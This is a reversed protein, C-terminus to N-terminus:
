EVTLVLGIDSTFTGKLTKVEYSDSAFTLIFYRGKNCYDVLYGYGYLQDLAKSLQKSPKLVLENGSDSVVALEDATKILMFGDVNEEASSVKSALEISRLENYKRSYINTFPKGNFEGQFVIFNDTSIVYKGLPTDIEHAEDPDTDYEEHDLLSGESDYIVYGSADVIEETTKEDGEEKEEMHTRSYYLLLNDNALTVKEPVPITIGKLASRFEKGVYNPDFYMLSIKDEGAKVGLLIKHPFIALIHDIEIEGQEAAPHGNKVLVGDSVYWNEAVLNEYSDKIVRFCIANKETMTVESQGDVCYLPVENKELERLFLERKNDSSFRINLSELYDDVKICLAQASVIKGNEDKSNSDVIYFDGYVKNLVVAGKKARNMKM